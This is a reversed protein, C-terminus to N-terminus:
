RIDDLPAHKREPAVTIFKRLKYPKKRKFDYTQIRKRILAVFGPKIAYITFDRGMKAGEGPHWLAGKQRIIINGPLVPQGDSMKFGRYKPQSDRGNKTKGGQKKSAYRQAGISTNGAALLSHRQISRALSFM